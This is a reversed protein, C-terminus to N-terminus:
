YSELYLMIYDLKDIVQSLDTTKEPVRTEEVLLVSGWSIVSINQFHCWSYWHSFLNIKLSIIHPGNTRSWCASNFKITSAWQFLLGHTSMDSWDSVNNQNRVLWGKGKRRLAAHKASFCCIGSKYNSGVPARVCSRGCELRAREVWIM